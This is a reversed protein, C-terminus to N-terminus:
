APAHDGLQNGSVFATGGTTNNLTITVSANVTM